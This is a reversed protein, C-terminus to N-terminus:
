EPRCPMAGDCCIEVPHPAVLIGVAVVVVMGRLGIRIEVAPEGARAAWLAPRQSPRRRAVM